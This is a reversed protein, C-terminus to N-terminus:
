MRWEYMFTSFTNEPEDTASVSSAEVADTPMYHKFHFAWTPMEYHFGIIVAGVTDEKEINDVFSPNDRFVTGDILINHAVAAAAIGLSGYISAEKTKMPALRADYAMTRGIPDAYYAFGGPMNNGYRMELQVDASTFMNGLVVGGGISADFSYDARHGNQYFKKKRMYTMNLLPETELQNDWGQAVDAVGGVEHVFNQTQEAMSPRGVWGIVLGIGRFEDDNFAIFGLQGTLIGAYPVDNPIPNPDDIDDPTQIIQGIAVSMRYNLGDGSLGPLWAALAKTHPAAGQIKDWSDAIPSHMQFSWGNSFGNDSDVLVDNDLEFRYKGAETLHRQSNGPFFKHYDTEEAEPAVAYLSQSVGLLALLFFVQKM